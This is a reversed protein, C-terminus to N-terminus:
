GIRWRKRQLELDQQCPVCRVKGLALRGPLLGEECEVCATTPWSGDARQVQEARAAQQVCSVAADTLTQALTSAQDLIDAERVGAERSM